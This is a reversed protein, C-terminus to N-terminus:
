VKKKLAAIARHLKVRVNNPKSELLTAIEQIEMEEMFRLQLIENYQAPLDLMLTRIHEVSLATDITAELSIEAPLDQGDEISVEKHSSFSRAHDIALNRATRYLFAQMHEIMEGRKSISRWANCFTQQLLEEAETQNQRVRYYLFRYLADAYQDYAHLFKREIKSAKNM